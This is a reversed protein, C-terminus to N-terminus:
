LWGAERLQEYTVGGAGEPNRDQSRKLYHIVIRALMDTEINVKDGVRRLALTTRSLTTPILAVGFTDDQVDAVTLSIGSIAVSGKPVVYMAQQPDDLRFALRVEGSTNAVRTVTATTDVHGQVFHGDLRNAASLARELNVADNPRLNGLTTRSLTEPVVDFEAWTETGFESVTLCVGDVAISAGCVLGSRVQSGVDIRLRRGSVSTRTALVTGVHEVIGTFM